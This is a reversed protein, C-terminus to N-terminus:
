TPILDSLTSLTYVTADKPLGEPAELGVFTIPQLPEEALNVHQAYWSFAGAEQQLMDVLYHMTLYRREVIARALVSASVRNTEVRNFNPQGKLYLHMWKASWAGQADKLFMLPLAVRGAGRMDSKMRVTAAEFPKGQQEPTRQMFGFFCSEVDTFDEGAFINVQPIIYAAQVRGLDIDIFESAGSPAETLDGSHVGGVARLNTYSLHNVAHFNEDLLIASLDYDTRQKRQKWYIFFRLIGQAVPMTSGRPMIAFGRAKNKDSLPLVVPLVNRDVVLHHIHLIRRQLDQDCLHVLSQVVAADLPALVDPTVWARGKSNAFIRSSGQTVRNQLHERLSLLVRGSVRPLIAPLADLLQETVHEGKIRSIRDVNRILLGPKLQLLALAHSVDEMIFAAEIRAELTSTEQEGRAVAFVEQAQAYQPYEHPHLREGLRKWRESYQHVDALQAPSATIVDNLASLMTRRLPRRFSCFPTAKQLTVDGDSLTCTLRLIDTVTDVLISSNQQVRVQNIIAKTERVPIADPQPDDLCVLALEQVLTRDSENLPIRSGAFQHYLALAEEPLSKGLHLVTVRDSVSPIFDDHAALMDVYSHQYRGYHTTGTLLLRCIERWWFDCTDPVGEPFNIFYVNHQVHAGVLNEVAALITQAQNKVVAPHQTSLHALAEKSLKFGVAMLAVDLQRAVTEGNGTPGGVLAPIRLTREVLERLM